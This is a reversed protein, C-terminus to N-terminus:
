SLEPYRSGVLKFVKPNNILKNNHWSSYSETPSDTVVRMMCGDDKGGNITRLEIVHYVDKSHICRYIDGICPERVQSANLHFGTTLLLSTIGLAQIFKRRKM